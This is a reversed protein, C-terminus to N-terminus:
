DLLGRDQALKIYRSATRDSVHLQRAVEKRRDYDDYDKVIQAVRALAEDKVPRGRRHGLAGQKAGGLEDPTLYEYPKGEASAKALKVLAVTGTATRALVQNMIQGAPLDHVMSGTLAFDLHGEAEIKMAFVVAKGDHVGVTWHLLPGNKYRGRLEARVPFPTGDELTTYAVNESLEPGIVLLRSSDFSTGRQAMPVLIGYRRFIPLPKDVM